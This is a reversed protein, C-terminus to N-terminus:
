QVVRNEDKATGLKTPRKKGVDGPFRTPITIGYRTYLAIYSVVVAAPDSRM